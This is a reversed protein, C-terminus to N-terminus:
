RAKSRRNVTKVYELARTLIDIDDYFGGLTRNCKHCLWGKFEDTDHNHDLCWVSRNKGGIGQLQTNNKLCIPCCFDSPPKKHIKRLNTRVTQLHRECKKCEHRQKRIGFNTGWTFNYSPFVQKCKACQKVPAIDEELGDFLTNFNNM